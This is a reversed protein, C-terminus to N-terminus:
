RSLESYVYGRYDKNKILFLVTDGIHLSGHGAEALATSSAMGAGSCLVLLVFLNYSILYEALLLSGM